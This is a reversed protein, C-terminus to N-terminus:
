GAPSSEAARTSSSISTILWRFQIRFKSNQIKFKARPVRAGCGDCDKIFPKHPLRGPQWAAFRSDFQCAPGAVMVTKTSRNTPCGDRSGHLSVLISNARPNRLWRLGQHVAQPAATGAAMCRFSFRIPVRAGCGDCDKNFPKHPLRGPQWAAFRSDFQCAPEAVMATKSSRSTPCGDRSGHLSVLISNARPGRLWRLGQHVAQPAATGAAMCRFSFRIPM